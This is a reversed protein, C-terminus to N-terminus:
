IAFMVFLTFKTSIHLAECAIPLSNHAVPGVYDDGKRTYYMDIYTTSILVYV